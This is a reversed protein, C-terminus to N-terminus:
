LIRCGKHKSGWSAWPVHRRGKRAGAEGACGARSSSWRPELCFVLFHAQTVGLIWASFGTPQRKNGM